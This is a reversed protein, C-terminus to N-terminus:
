LGARLTANNLSKLGLDGPPVVVCYLRDKFLSFWYNQILNDDCRFKALYDGVREIGTTNTWIM